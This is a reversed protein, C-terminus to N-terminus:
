GGARKIGAFYFQLGLSIDFKNTKTTRTTKVGNLETDFESRAYNYKFLAEIGFGNSSFITFGPGLGIAFINTNVNQTNGGIVQEDSSNGFGVNVEGFLALDDAFPLYYRTFPGFLLDSDDTRDEGPDKVTSFTYDMGIGITFDELLFYGIRPAVSIQTASHGKEDENVDPSSFSIKQESKSFGLTAGLLFNGQDLMQAQLSQFFTLFLLASFFLHKKM